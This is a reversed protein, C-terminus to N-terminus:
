GAFRGADKRASQPTADRGHLPQDVVRQRDVLMRDSRSDHAKLKPETHASAEDNIPESYSVPLTFLFTAGRDPNQQAWLRGGHAEVISRSITLGLGLGDPKTTFFPDFIQEPDVGRFGHGNDRVSFQLFGDAVQTHIAVHRNEPPNDALARYANRLLNVLTQQIQICDALVKLPESPIDCQLDIRQATTESTVLGTAELVMDYVEVASRHPTSKRSFDRLRRIIEAARTAQEAIKHTWERLRDVQDVRDNQLIKECASAFNVIAFLPQNIEHSIGALLEGMLSLRGVHALQSEAQRRDTVDQGAALFRVVNGVADRLPVLQGELCRRTGKLGQIQSEWAHVVGQRVKEIGDIWAGQSPLSLFERVEKGVVQELSEAEFIRLGAPNIDLLKEDASLIMLCQQDNEFIARFWSESEGGDLRETTIPTSLM